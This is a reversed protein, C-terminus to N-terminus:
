KAIANQANTFIDMVVKSEQHWNFLFSAQECAHQMQKLQDSALMDNLQAAIVAPEHSSIIEGIGYDRVIRGTEPLDSILVPVGAHMYDFLKNPLSFKYNLHTPKDLSLGISAHRTFARLREIPQKPYFVIRNLLEPRQAEQKMRAIDRGDGVIVLIADKVWQMAQVAEMGGRDPDIYAGQLMIIPPNLPLGLEERSLSMPTEIRPPVNRVVRVPVGYKERYIAAISDNVTYVHKLKPFMSAELKEWVRKPFKRGTLGEAETFYEHSDYVLISGKLWSIIYAPWLTDLDNALIIDARRFLLFFFMRLQLMIYFPFGRRFLLRLRVIEHPSDFPQSEPLLRGVITVHYDMDSLTACVKAVRQDHQIDNSVLVFIRKNM